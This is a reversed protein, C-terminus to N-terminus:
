AKTPLTLHTYSVAIVGPRASGAACGCVSNVFILFTIDKKQFLDDVDEITKLEIFGATTLEKRMPTCLEEPYM